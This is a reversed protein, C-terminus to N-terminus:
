AAESIGFFIGGVGWALQWKPRSTIWGLNAGDKRSKHSLTPLM